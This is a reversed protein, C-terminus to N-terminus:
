VSDGGVSEIPATSKFQARIKAPSSRRGFSRRGRPGEADDCEFAVRAAGNNAQRVARVVGGPPIDTTVPQRVCEVRRAVGTRM